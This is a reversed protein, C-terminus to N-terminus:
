FFPRLGAGGGGMIVQVGWLHDGRVVGGDGFGRGFWGCRVSREGGGGGCIIARWWLVAALTRRTTSHSVAKMPMQTEMPVAPTPMELWAVLRTSARVRRM